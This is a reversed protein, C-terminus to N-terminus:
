RQEGSLYIKFADNGRACEEKRAGRRCVAVLASDIGGSLGLLAKSFGNQSFLGKSWLSAWPVDM